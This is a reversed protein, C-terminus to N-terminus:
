VLRLDVIKLIIREINRDYYGTEPLFEKISENIFAKMKLIGEYSHFFIKGVSSNNYIQV